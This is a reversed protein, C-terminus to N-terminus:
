IHILSLMSVARFIEEADEAVLNRALAFASLRVGRVSVKLLARLANDPVPDDLAALRIARERKHRGRITAFPDIIRGGGIIRDAGANRLIFRDGYLASIPHDLIM